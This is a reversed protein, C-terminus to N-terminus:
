MSNLLLENNLNYVQTEEKEIINEEDDRKDKTSIPLKSPREPLHNDIQAKISKLYGMLDDILQEYYKYDLDEPDFIQM